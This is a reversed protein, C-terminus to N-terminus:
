HQLLVFVAGLMAINWFGPSLWAASLAKDYESKKTMDHIAYALKANMNTNMEAFKANVETRMEAMIDAKVKDVAATMEARMEAKMEAKMQAKMEAMKGDIDVSMKRSRPLTARLMRSSIRVGRAIM